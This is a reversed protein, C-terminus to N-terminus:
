VIIGVKELWDVWIENAIDDLSVKEKERRFFDGERVWFLDFDDWTVSYGLINGRRDDFQFSLRYQSSNAMMQAMPSDDGKSITIKSETQVMNRNVITAIFQENTDNLVRTKINEIVEIEKLNETLIKKLSNFGEAQFDIKQLSDFEKKIKYNSPLTSKSKGKTTPKVDIPYGSILNRINQIVDLMATNKNSWDSVPKGDKPLGKYDKFPTSLWDCPELVIPIITIKNQKQMKQATEFEKEYCYNSNIYDPSILALFLQSDELASSITDNLEQGALINKDTWTNILGDRKLQALHRHLLELNQEDQHSYSIFAKM